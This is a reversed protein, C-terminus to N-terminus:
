CPTAYKNEKMFIIDKDEHEMETLLGNIRSALFTDQGKCKIYKMEVNWCYECAEVAFIVSSHKIFQGCNCCLQHPYMYLEHCYRASTQWGLWGLITHPTNLFFEKALTAPVKALMRRFFIHWAQEGDQTTNCAISYVSTDLNSWVGRADIVPIVPRREGRLLITESIEFVPLLSEAAVGLNDEVKKAKAIAALLKNM